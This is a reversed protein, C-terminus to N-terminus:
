KKIFKSVKIGEATESQLIYTGVSLKNVPISIEGSIEPRMLLVQKGSIDMINITKVVDVSQLYLIETAPIPYLVPKDSKTQEIGTSKNPLTFVVKTYDSPDFFSYSNGSTTSYAIVTLYSGPELDINGSFTITKEENKDLIIKQFGFYTLANYDNIPYVFAVAYDEFYEGTNKIRATLVANEKDVQTDNPFSIKSTLTLASTATPEALVNVTLPNALSNYSSVNTRDNQPDYFATLYYQGAPLSIYGMFDFNKTAGAPINIPDSCVIQTITDNVASRLQIILNSNYEGGTNTIDVNFRGTTNQYLNGTTSFSNLTLKPLIDPTSFTISSSTLTANLYNPTGIKGRMIQWDSQETAKYVSYLKYSGNVVLSSPISAAYDLGSWGYYTKITENSYSKILKVFGSENYLALGISGNFTNIGYNYLEATITFTGSRSVTNASTKLPSNLYLQYPAVISSISPKQVGAVIIQDYNFGGSTGGGIGLAAPNLVSLEFYGDSSGSWGWNFHFLGNSDYGDCIFQHGVDTSSGAYFIPRQANLETKLINEWESKSYYDRKYSQLNSDYGFNKILANAMDITSASSSIGYDMNVAVGAHYMLTAVALNQVATSSSSYTEAMNAWDYTTKSFDASLPTAYGYPTYTNSGTGKVPWKHYRMVQAMATAVCGTVTRESSKTSITPCLDNYPSGQDWKIGGLLPAVSTAFTTQRTSINTSTSLQVSSTTATVEPQDMLVKMEKQYFRLWESLNPPLSTSNFNGSDSYGLIEKARDDGSIIVFGNDEDRNFVYYYVNESSSRTAITDTCAYALKLSTSGSSMRKTSSQSKQSFSSAINLAESATRSKTFGNTIFLFIFIILLLAKIKLNNM